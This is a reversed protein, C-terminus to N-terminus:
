NEHESEFGRIENYRIIRDPFKENDMWVCLM